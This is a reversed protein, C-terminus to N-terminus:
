PSVSAENNGSIINLAREVEVLLNPKDQLEVLQLGALTPRPVFLCDPENDDNSVSIERLIDISRQPGDLKLYVMALNFAALAYPVGEEKALAV